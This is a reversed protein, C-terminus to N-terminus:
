MLGGTFEISVDDGKKVNTVESAFIDATEESETLEVFIAFDDVKCSEM